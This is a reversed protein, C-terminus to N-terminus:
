PFMDDLFRKGLVVQQFLNKVMMFSVPTCTKDVCIQANPIKGNIPSGDARSLKQTTPYFYEHPILNSNLRSSDGGTDLM